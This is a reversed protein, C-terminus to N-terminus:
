LFLDMKERVSTASLGLTMDHEQLNQVEPIEAEKDAETEPTASKEIAGEVKTTSSTRQPSLVQSNPITQMKTSSSTDQIPV